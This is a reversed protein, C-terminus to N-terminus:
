EANAVFDDVLSMQPGQVATVVPAEVAGRELGPGARDAWGVAARAPRARDDASLRGGLVVGAVVGWVLVAGAPVCGGGARSRAAPRAAVRAAPDEGPVRRHMGRVVVVRAAAVAGARARGPAASARRGDTGLLGARVRRRGDESLGPLRQPVRR